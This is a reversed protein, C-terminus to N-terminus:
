ELLELQQSTLKESGPGYKAIRQLRLRDELAQIQLRAYQLNSEYANLKGSVMAFLPAALQTKLQELLEAHSSTPAAPPPPPSFYARASPARAFPQFACERHRNILLFVQQLALM